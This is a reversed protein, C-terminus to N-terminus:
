RALIIFTWRQQGDEIECWGGSSRSELVAAVNDTFSRGGWTDGVASGCPLAMAESACSVHTIMKTLDVSSTM